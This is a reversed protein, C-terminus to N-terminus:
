IRAGRGRIQEIAWAAHERMLPEPDDLAHRLAPLASKNGINGLAVCVNRLFGRRKIRYIPMGRFFTKFKAEDWSLFEVLPPLHRRRFEKVPSERAFRNWPCVELCDDCGFIRDGILPRLEVPISGKLEITLYSICLRADLQYPAVIARTPCADLCRHCKGCYEREPRDPPL